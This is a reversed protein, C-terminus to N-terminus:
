NKRFESWAYWIAGAVLLASLPLWAPAGPQPALDIAVDGPASAIAAVVLLMGAVIGGLAWRWMRAQRAYRRQELVLARAADLRTRVVNPIAQLTRATFGDDDVPPPAHARLLRVIPDADPEDTAPASM